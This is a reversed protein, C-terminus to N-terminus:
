CLYTKMLYTKLSSKFEIESKTDRLTSPLSNWIVPGFHSFAREAFKKSGKKPVRLLMQNESRLSRSPVYLHILSSLYSPSKKHICKHCLVATKYVIRAKVPLWHLYLLLPTVHDSKKKKLVIKAAQNQFRQLKNLADDPLNAYLSNCYDLKSFMFSSILTKLSNENLFSSMM